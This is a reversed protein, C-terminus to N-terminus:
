RWLIITLALAAAEAFLIATCSCLLNYERYYPMGAFHVWWPLKRVLVAAVWLWAVVPSTVMCFMVVDNDVGRFRLYPISFETALEYYAVGAVIGCGMALVSLILLFTSKLTSEEITQDYDEDTMGPKSMEGRRCVILTKAGERYM